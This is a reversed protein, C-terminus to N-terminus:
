YIDGGDDEPKELKMGLLMGVEYSAWSFGCDYGDNFCDDSNGASRESTYGASNVNYNSLVWRKLSMCMEFVDELSTYTSSCASMNHNAPCNVNYLCKSCDKM